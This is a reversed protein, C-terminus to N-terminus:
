NKVMKGIMLTKDDAVKVFYFGNPLGSVDVVMKQELIQRSLLQQANMNYIVLIANKQPSKPLEITIQTSSPNPYIFLKDSFLVEDVSATCVEEVEEQSDCGTANDHIEIAGNPSVLYDCISQVECTSLSVNDLIYLNAISDADINDLGSLSELNENEIILLHGGISTLNGLGTLNALTDNYEIFFHGGITILNDLGSLNLLSKNRYIIQPGDGSYEFGISLTGGINTLNEFGILSSLNDNNYILLNEGIATITNLGNLNTIENGSITLSGQLETCGPYNTQFNDIQSQTFLYYNGSPLCPLTIGCLDAIEPPNNCGPANGHIDIIGNPDTLYDCIGQAECSSLTSNYKIFLSGVISTINELGTLSTLTDNAMIHLSGGIFSLNDLGSLNALLPNGYYREYGYTDKQGISLTGEITTLNGLGSLSSLADNGYIRLDGGISPLNDIGSLSELTNNFFVVMDEGISVVNNLGTLSTLADNDNIRLGGGITTLNELGSLSTLAINYRGSTVLGPASYMSPGIMLAGGISNVNDLGSLNTLAPCNEISLNGGISTVNELGTLSILSPNDSMSSQGIVLDGGISNVNDLGSLDTLVDNGSIDLNGGVSTVGDFGNLNTIDSGRWHGIRVNGELTTCDPYNITFDDIHSQSLFYYNGYSLCSLTIGCASAVEVPSNCGTKNSLINVSGNPNSLYGCLWQAECNSFSDNYRISLGGEISSLNDLGTFSTLSSNWSITLDGGINTLSNLGTFDVLQENKYISLEGGISTINELGALSALSRNYDLILDGEIHSLVSLGELNGISTHTHGKITVDGEIETCNPYNTQFNDIQEQTTFEIGEPFCSQSSVTSQIFLVIVIFLTLKKM